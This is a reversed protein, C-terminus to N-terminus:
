VRRAIFTGMNYSKSLNWADKKIISFGHKALENSLDILGIHRRMDPIQNYTESQEMITENETFFMRHFVLWKKSHKIMGAVCKKWDSVLEIVASEMVVDFQKGLDDTTIDAVFFDGDPYNEKAFNCMHVSLDLGSYKVINGLGEKSFCVAQWGSGCGVDLLDIEETERETIFRAVEVAKSFSDYKKYEDTEFYGKNLKNNEYALEFLTWDAGQVM